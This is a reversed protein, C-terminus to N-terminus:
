KASNPFSKMQFGTSRCCDRVWTEIRLTQRSSTQSMTGCRTMTLQTASQMRLVAPTRLSWSLACVSKMLWRQTFLKSRARVVRCCCPYLLRTSYTRPICTCLRMRTMHLPLSASRPWRWAQIVVQVLPIDYRESLAKMLKARFRIESGWEGQTGGVLIFHTHNPDLWAGDESNDTNAEYELVVQPEHESVLEDANLVKCLPAIGVICNVLKENYTGLAQGVLKM